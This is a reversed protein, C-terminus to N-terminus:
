FVPKRLSIKPTTKLLSAKGIALRKTGMTSDITIKMETLWKKLKM